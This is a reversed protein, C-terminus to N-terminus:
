EDTNIREGTSIYEGRIVYVDGGDIKPMNWVERAENRNMIGRDVLQQTVNLKDQNSMYQLRNATAMVLSGEAQERPTFLMGTAVESFQISFPEICGEYFASWEDGVAENQLIKDNVGFYQNVSENIQRITDADAVYPKYDIQKANAYTNPMLLVGGGEAETSLNLDRFRKRENALDEPSTFNTLNAMFKYSAANKVGEKIGKDQIGILEMTPHLPANSEGRLDDEYQFRTMIGVRDLEIAAHEGSNLKYRLYPVGNYDVFECRKPLLPYLGVVNGKTDELPAIVVNNEVMLITALRYMFQSWTQVSNPARRLATQTVPKASGNIEVKLKSAHRAIADVAARVRQTEYIRGDFKPFYVDRGNLTVLRGQYTGQPRRMFRSFLNEFFGM